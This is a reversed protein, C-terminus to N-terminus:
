LIKEKERSELVKNWVTWVYDEGCELLFELQPWANQFIETLYTNPETQHNNQVSCLVLEQVYRGLIIPYMIPKEVSTFKRRSNYGALIHASTELFTEDNSPVSMMFVGMAILIDMIRYNEHLDEFDIIGYLQRLDQLKTKASTPCPDSPKKDSSVIASNEIVIINEDHLDGHVWGKELCQLKDINDNFIRIAKKILERQHDSELEPLYQILEPVKKIDWNTDPPNNANPQFDKLCDQIAAILTGIEFLADQSTIVNQAVKGPIYTLMFAFCKSKASEYHFYDDGNLTEVPKPCVFGHNQLHRMSEFQLNLTQVDVDQLFKLVYSDQTATTVHFNRDEHSRLETIATADKNYFTKMAAIAETTSITPRNTHLEM